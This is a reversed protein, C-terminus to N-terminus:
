SGLATSSTCASGGTPSPCVVITDPRPPRWASWSRRARFRPLRTAQGLLVSTFVLGLGCLQRADLTEGAVATGLLVGSVPNLLGILAVTGTRLRRLGAFWAAFALATAVVSVYGFALLAGVGIPPPPGEVVAAAAALVVGGAILQWSTLSLVDIDTGWRKALVYGFSSMTMAAVSALVGTGNVAVPGTFLMLAVGALGALAGALHGPRPREALAAWAFVMMVVPSTAMVTSAVSTPLSQAAVYVLAFFAGMNLTGLVAARWWWSGRPLRRRVVLLLLGAPLARIAGGYLPYAAPLYRHTVFYTTGWAVPAVATVAAWRLKVEM